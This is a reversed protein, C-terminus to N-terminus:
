CNKVCVNDLATGVCINDPSFYKTFIGVVAGGVVVVVVAKVVLGLVVVVIAVTAVAVVGPDVIDPLVTDGISIVVVGATAMPIAIGTTSFLFPITLEFVFFLLAVRIEGCCCRTISTGVHGANM